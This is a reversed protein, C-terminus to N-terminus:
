SRGSVPLRARVRFGGGPVRSTELEGGVAAARERMGVLGHGSGPSPRSDPAPGKGNDEVEVLVCDSEYTITVVAAAPGAHRLVNALSEQAIRFAALDVSAELPRRRGSIRICTSVGAATTSAALADLRGLGPASSTFTTEDVERLMGLISRLEDLAEKSASKIAALAAAAQEPREELVHTAVGAQLSITAFSYAVVDHLERAIRRREASVAREAEGEPALGLLAPRSPFEIVNPASSM